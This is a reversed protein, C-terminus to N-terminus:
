KKMIFLEMADLVVLVDTRSQTDINEYHHINDCIFDKDSQRLVNHNQVLVIFSRKLTEPIQTEFLERKIKAYEPM